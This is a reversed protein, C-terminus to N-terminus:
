ASRVKCSRQYRYWSSVLQYGSPVTSLMKDICYCILANVSNQNNFPAPEVGTKRGVFTRGRESAHLFMQTDNGTPVDEAQLEADNKILGQLCLERSIFKHVLVNIAQAGGNNDFANKHTSKTSGKKLPSVLLGPCKATDIYHLMTTKISDDTLSWDGDCIWGDVDYDELNARHNQLFEAFSVSFTRTVPSDKVEGRVVETLPLDALNDVYIPAFMKVATIDYRECVEKVDQVTDVTVYNILGMMKPDEISELQAGWFESKALSSVFVLTKGVTFAEREWFNRHDHFILYSRSNPILHAEFIKISPILDTPRKVLATLAGLFPKITSKSQETM